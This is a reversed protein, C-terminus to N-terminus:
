DDLLKDLAELEVDTFQHILGHRNIFASPIIELDLRRVLAVVHDFLWPMTPVYNLMKTTRSKTTHLIEALNDYDRSSLNDRLYDRIDKRQNGKIENVQM